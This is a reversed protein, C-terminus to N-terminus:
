SRHGWDRLNHEDPCQLKLLLAKTRGAALGYRLSMCPTCAQQATQTSHLPGGDSEEHDVRHLAQQVPARQEQQQVCHMDAATCGLRTGASLAHLGSRYTSRLPGEDGEEHAVGQLAQQM